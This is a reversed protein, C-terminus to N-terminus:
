QVSRSGSDESRGAARWRFLRVLGIVCSILAGLAIILLINALVWDRISAVRAMGEGAERLERLGRLSARIEGQHSLLVAAMLGTSGADIAARAGVRWRSLQPRVLNAAALIIGALMVLGIPVLYRSRLDLWLPSTPLALPEGNRIALGPVRFSGLWWSLFLLGLIIEAVSSARSARRGDKVAPLRSPAWDRGSGSRGQVHEAVAFGLTILAFWTLALTWLSDLSGALAKAPSASRSPLLFALALPLFIGVGLLIWGEIKLALVYMPFLAPGILHRAPLYRGATQFPRGRTKLLAEVESGTLPRGLGAEREERESRIDEALEDLIDARRDKPLWFGVANLYRDILEM